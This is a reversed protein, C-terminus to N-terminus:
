PIIKHGELQFEDALKLEDIAPDIGELDKETSLRLTATGNLHHSKGDILADYDVRSFSPTRGDGPLVFNVAVAKIHIKGHEGPECHWAGQASSFPDWIGPVGGQSSDSVLLVGGALFSMLGRSSFIGERDTVTMVYTGQADDCGTTNAAADLSLSVGCALMAILPLRTLRHSLNRIITKKM